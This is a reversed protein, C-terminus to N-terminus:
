KLPRQLRWDEILGVFVETNLFGPSNPVTRQLRWDEIIGVFVETTINGTPNSRSRYYEPFPMVTVSSLRFKQIRNNGQDTVYINGSLDFAIGYPNSFQWDGAGKTGWKTLFTGTSSFRQIRYNGWDAIYVNGSADVAVGEPFNFQGDGSGYSGGKALFTGTSNFKQIRNNGEDTVYVNGSADVAVGIPSQFQGDGSGYSGWKTLFTGTSSFKQIRHNNTDAVYVRGSSDVAVGMPYNFQRDGSGLSGWKTLFTGNSNFKQIRHNNMEAVYVGGSSDVAVGMPYNFQGDGSGLSGWKTLFTGSSSFKQIRHNNMDAVYVRESSDVAMGRPSYFQGDESGSSGWKLVFLDTENNDVTTTFNLVQSSVSGISNSAWAQFYYKTGPNLSSIQTNFQGTSTRDLQSTPSLELSPKTGYKFWVKCPLGGTNDLYGNLTATTTAVGSASQTSVAPVTNDHPTTFTRDQGPTASGKSNTAWARYHYLTNSKLNSIQENFSGTTYVYKGGSASGYATTEGYQFWVTCIMDGGTSDLNGNLTATTSSSTTASGTSVSPVSLPSSTTFTNDQGPTASGMGNSATARYHYTTSPKLNDIQLSYSGTTTKSYPDTKTLGYYVTEGYEFGVTCPMNGTSDLCGNLTATTQTISNSDVSQTSVTPVSKTLISIKNSTRLINNYEDLETIVNDSDVKAFLFYEGQHVGSTSLVYQDGQSEDIALPFIYQSTLPITFMTGFYQSESLYFRINSERDMALTGQNKVEYNGFFVNDSYATSPASLSTVVLDPLPTPWIWIDVPIDYWDDNAVMYYISDSSTLDFTNEDCTNPALYQLYYTTVGDDMIIVEVTGFGPLANNKVKVTWKQGEILKDSPITFMINKNRETHTVSSVHYANSPAVSCTGAAVVQVFLLIVLLSLVVVIKKNFFFKM